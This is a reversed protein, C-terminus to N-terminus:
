GALSLHIKMRHTTTNKSKLSGLDVILFNIGGGVAKQIVFETEFVFSDLKLPPPDNIANRLANKVSAIAAAFGHDKATGIAIDGVPLLVLKITQGTEKSGSAEVGGGVGGVSIKIGLEGASESVIGLELEIRDIQLRPRGTETGQALRIDEKIAKIVQDVGLEDAAMSEACLALVFVTCLIIVYRM